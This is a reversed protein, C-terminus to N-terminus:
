VRKPSILSMVKEFPMTGSDLPQDDEECLPLSLGWFTTGANELRLGIEQDFTRGKVPRCWIVKAPTRRHKYEVSVTTGEEFTDTVVVRAGSASIDVTHAVCSTGKTASVIKIPLIARHRRQRRNRM